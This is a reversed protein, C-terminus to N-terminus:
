LIKIEKIKILINGSIENNAEKHAITILKKKNLISILNM